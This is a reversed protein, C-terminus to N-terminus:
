RRGCGCLVHTWSPLLWRLWKAALTPNPDLQACTKTHMRPPARHSVATSRLYPRLRRRSPRARSSLSQMAVPAVDSIAVSGPPLLPRIPDVGVRTARNIPPDVRDV